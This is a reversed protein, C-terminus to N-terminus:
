KELTRKATVPKSPNEAVEAFERSDQAADLGRGVVHGTDKPYDELDNKDFQDGYDYWLRGCEERCRALVVRTVDRMSYLYMANDKYVYPYTVPRPEGELLM